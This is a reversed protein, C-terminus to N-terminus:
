NTLESPLLTTPHETASGYDLLVRTCSRKIEKGEGERLSSMWKQRTHICNNVEHNKQIRCLTM